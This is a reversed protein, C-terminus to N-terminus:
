VNNMMNLECSTPVFYSGPVKCKRFYNIGKDWNFINLAELYENYWGKVM